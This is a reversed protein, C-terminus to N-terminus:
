VDHVPIEINSTNNTNNNNATNNSNNDDVGVIESSSDFMASTSMVDSDATNVPTPATHLNVTSGALGREFFVVNIRDTNDSSSGNHDHQNTQKPDPIVFVSNQQQQQQQQQQTPEANRLLEFQRLKEELQAKQKELERITQAAEARAASVAIRCASSILTNLLSENVNPVLVVLEDGLPYSPPSSTGNSEFDTKHHGNTLENSEDLAKIKRKSISATQARLMMKKASSAVLRMEARLAYEREEYRQRMEEIAEKSADRFTNTESPSSAQDVSSGASHPPQAGRSLMNQRASTSIKNPTADDDITEPSNPRKVGKEPKPKPPRPPNSSHKWRRHAALSRTSPFKLDCIVCVTPDERDLDTPTDSKRPTRNLNNNDIDTEDLSNMDENQRTEGDSPKQNQAHDTDEACSPWWGARGAMAMRTREVLSTDATIQLPTDMESALVM